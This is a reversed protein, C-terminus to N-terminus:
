VSQRLRLVREIGSPEIIEADDVLEEYLKEAPRLGIFSVQIDEEPVFGALRILNCNM